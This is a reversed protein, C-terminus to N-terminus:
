TSYWNFKAPWNLVQGSFILWVFYIISHTHTSFVASLFFGGFWDKEKKKLCEDIVLHVASEPLVQMTQVFSLIYAPSLPGSLHCFVLLVLIDLCQCPIPCLFRMWMYQTWAQLSTFGSHCFLSTYSRLYTWHCSKLSHYFAPCSLVVTCQSLCIALSLNQYYYVPDSMLPCSLHSWVNIHTFLSQNKPMPSSGVGM